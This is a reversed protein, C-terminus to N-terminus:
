YNFLENLSFVREQECANISQLIKYKMNPTIRKGIRGKQVQKHTLQSTSKKVLHDNTLGLSVMVADLPQIGCNKNEIIM